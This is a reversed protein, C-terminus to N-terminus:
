NHGQQRQRRRGRRRSGRNRRSSIINSSRAPVVPAARVESPRDQSTEGAAADATNIVMVNIEDPSKIKNKLSESHNSSIQTPAVSEDSFPDVLKYVAHFGKWNVTDDSRFKLLLENSTSVFPSPPTSGCFRGFKESLQDGGDFVEIYDYGCEPEAEVEFAIFELRVLKNTPAQLLWDCDETMDYQQDGYKAHSYISKRTDTATLRGGCVTSYTARFGRRQVSADSYFEIYMENSSSTLPPPKSSGCYKGITMSSKNAGDYIEVNDYSCDQHPELEFEEFALTVRHGSTVLFHWVCSQRSPYSDPFNPSHFSGTPGTVEHKCGGEKCDHRNEHLTFGSHCSCVYSGITNKCVHQCGGNRVVCEDRDTFFYAEFGTRQVTNDSTFEVLLSNGESTIPSPKKTGCYVGHVLSDEGIGGKVEVSDYECDQNNGELDFYTFNITIRYGEPAVLQWICKKNMPYMSPFSPSKLTGNMAEIYGGCADECKKGDSHLEYGIRCECRYSGLTNICTHQCGHDSTQCEDYEKLFKAAFGPKQVSGDSKFRVWLINSTSKIGQPIKYGCHKGIVRAEDDYGDRFELFDYVCSDHNEIEFSQFEVAVTFSEPVQIKWICDKNPRYDDPYNPSSLFGQEKEILGGCVAEYEASFASMVGQSSKYEIWLRSESSVLTAPLSSGCYRGILPSLSYHGDRIELYSEECDEGPINLSTINLYIKEGHTASIRWQCHQVNNTATPSSFQGSPEQLTRGCITCSYLKNAQVIDGPSLKLRQGIEVPNGNPLKKKPVITDDYPGRSFTNRAYHMISEYDYEEGLSDVEGEPMENFNYHQGIMVNEMIIDIYEDRDPRTHEHWFGVVHGLEHVVIGFKDCNKGISVDQRGEGSKGVYSCCGCPRETFVIYDTHFEPNREIFTVCTHNEWHQMARRFLAKHQGSFTSNIEYPIVAHPWLRDKKGTAARRERNVAAEKKNNKKEKRREHRRRRLEEQLDSNGKTMKHKLKRIEELQNLKQVTSLTQNTEIYEVSRDLGEVFTVAQLLRINYDYETLAIDGLSARAKCPDLATSYAILCIALQAISELWYM